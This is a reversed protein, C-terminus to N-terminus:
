VVFRGPNLISQPDFRHRIQKMLTKDRFDYGWVDIAKKFSVPVSELIITGRSPRLTHRLQGIEDALQQASLLSEEWGLYVRIVGNGAHAKIWVVANMRTKLSELVEVMEVMRNPLCNVKLKIMVPLSQELWPSDERLLQWLMAQETADSVVIGQDVLDSWLRELQEIQWQVAKEVDGFRLVLAYRNQNRTLPLSRNVLELSAPNLFEVATPVLPSRILKAVAAGAAPLAKLTVIVTKESPPLPRLKFFFDILIGLTGFAGTYLKCMDYGTVNKVVRSGFRTWVGNPQVLGLGILHDRVTGQSFRLPGSDHCSVIGGLTATEYAPPDIPLCLHDQALRAQLDALRCSSEVKVVLDQPEYELIQSFNELSLAVDFKTLPNGLHQKTGAGFPVVSWSQTSAQELIAGVEKATKPAYSREPFKGDVVFKSHEAQSALSGELHLNNTSKVEVSIQIRDLALWVSLPPLGPV